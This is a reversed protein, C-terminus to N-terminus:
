RMHLPEELHQLCFEFDNEKTFTSYLTGAYLKVTNDDVNYRCDTEFPPSEWYPKDTNIGLQYEESLKINLELSNVSLVPIIPFSSIHHPVLKLNWKM